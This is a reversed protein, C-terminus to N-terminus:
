RSPRRATLIYRGDVRFRRGSGDVIRMAARVTLRGRRNLLSRGAASLVASPRGARPRRAALPARGFSGGGIPRGTITALTLTGACGNPCALAFTVVGGPAVPMTPGDVRECDVNVADFRDAHLVDNSQGCAISHDAAGDASTIEDSGREGDLDDAGQQGDLTDNGRGGNLDDDGAGGRLVDDGNGGVLNDDGEDGALTDAGSGGTLDDDGAGGSLAASGTVSLRDDGADGHLAIGNGYGVLQDNGADGHLTDGDRGSLQDDGDGGSLQDPFTASGGVLDDGPGGDVTGPIPANNLNV